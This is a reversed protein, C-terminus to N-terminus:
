IINRTKIKKIENLKNWEINDTFYLFTIYNSSFDKYHDFEFEFCKKLYISTSHHINNIYNKMHNHKVNLCNWLYYNYIKRAEVKYALRSKMTTIDEETINYINKLVGIATESMQKVYAESHKKYSEM